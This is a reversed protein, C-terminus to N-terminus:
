KVYILVEALFGSWIYAHCQDLSQAMTAENIRLEADYNFIYQILEVNCQIYFDFSLYTTSSM